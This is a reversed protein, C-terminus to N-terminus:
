RSNAPAQQQQSNATHQQLYRLLYPLSLCSIDSGLLGDLLQLCFSLAPPSAVALDPLLALRGSTLYLPQQQSRHVREHNAVVRHVTSISSFNHM